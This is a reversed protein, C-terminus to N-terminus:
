FLYKEMVRFRIFKIISTFNDIIIHYLTVGILIDNFILWISNYLNIYNSNNINLNDNFIPLKLSNRSYLINKDYYYCLFQTPFYNFQKLRLDLQRFVRSVGVLSLGDDYNSGSKLNM